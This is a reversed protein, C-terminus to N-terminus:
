RRRWRARQEAAKGAREERARCPKTLRSDKLKMSAAVIRAMTTSPPMPLWTPTAMAATTMIPPVSSRRSSSQSFDIKPGSKSGVCYRM